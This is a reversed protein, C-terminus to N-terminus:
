CPKRIDYLDRIIYIHDAFIVTSIDISQLGAALPVVQRPFLGLATVQDAILRTTSIIAAVAYARARATNSLPLRHQLTESTSTCHLATCLTLARVSYGYHEYVSSRGGDAAVLGTVGM